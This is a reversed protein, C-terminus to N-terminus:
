QEVKFYYTIHGAATRATRRVQANTMGSFAGWRLRYLCALGKLFEPIYLWWLMVAVNVKLHDSLTDLLAERIEEKLQQHHPLLMAVRAAGAVLFLVGVWALFTMM